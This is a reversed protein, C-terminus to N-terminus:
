LFDVASAAAWRAVFNQKGRKARIAGSTHTSPVAFFM